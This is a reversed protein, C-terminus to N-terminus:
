RINSVNLFTVSRALRHQFWNWSLIMQQQKKKFYIESKKKKFYM